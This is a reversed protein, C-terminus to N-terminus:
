LVCAARLRGTFRCRPFRVSSQRAQQRLALVLGQPKRDHGARSSEAAAGIGGGGGARAHREAVGGHSLACPCSRCTCVPLLFAPHRSFACASSTAPRLPSIRVEEADSVGLARMAWSPLFCIGRAGGGFNTRAAFQHPNSGLLLPEMNPLVRGRCRAGKSCM